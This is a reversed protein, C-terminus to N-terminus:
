RATAHFLEHGGEGEPVYEQAKVDFGEEQLWVRYTTADAHSWYMPTGSGLWDDEVGEFADHGTILILWGGLVLWRRLKRLLPRQAALPVHILSYLCVVAQFAGEPFEVETMDARLFSARPVLKRAREVQVDSVDVGTVRFRDALIAATPVGCGCGLDLVAANRPLSDFLPRLWRRYDEFEHGFIDRVSDDSRYIQSVRNWGGRVLRGPIPDPPSAM